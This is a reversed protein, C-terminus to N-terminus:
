FLYTLAYCLSIKSDNRWSAIM